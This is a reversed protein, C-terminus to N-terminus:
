QSEALKEYDCHNERLVRAVEAEKWESYFRCQGTAPAYHFVHGSVSLVGLARRLCSIDPFDLVITASVPPSTQQQNKLVLKVDREMVKLTSIVQQQEQIIEALQKQKKESAHLLDLLQNEELELLPSEPEQTTATQSPQQHNATHDAVLQEIRAEMQQKKEAIKEMQQRIHAMQIQEQQTM